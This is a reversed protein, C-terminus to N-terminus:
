ETRVEFHDHGRTCVNNTKDRYRVTYATDIEIKLTFCCLSLPVLKNAAHMQTLKDPCSPFIPTQVGRWTCLFRSSGQVHMCPGCARSWKSFTNNDLTWICELCARYRTCVNWLRIVKHELSNNVKNENISQFITPSVDDGAM